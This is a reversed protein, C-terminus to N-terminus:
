LLRASLQTEPMGAALRLWGGSTKAPWLGNTTLETVPQESAVPTASAAAASSPPSLTVTVEGVGRKWTVKLTMDGMSEEKVM